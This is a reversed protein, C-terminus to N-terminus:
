LQLLAARIQEKAIIDLVSMDLPLKSHVAAGGQDEPQSDPERPKQTGLRYHRASEREKRERSFGVARPTITENVGQKAHEHIAERDRVPPIDLQIREIKM